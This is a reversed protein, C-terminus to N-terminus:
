GRADSPQFMLSDLFDVQATSQYQAQSVNPVGRVLPMEPTTM